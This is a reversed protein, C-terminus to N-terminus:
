EYFVELKWNCLRVKFIIYLRTIIIFCMTCLHYCSQPSFAQRAAMLFKIVRVGYKNTAIEQFNEAIEGPFFYHIRM